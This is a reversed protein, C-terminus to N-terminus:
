RRGDVDEDNLSGDDVGRRQELADAEPADGVPDATDDEPGPVVPVAQELADAEPTEADLEDTHPELEEAREADEPYDEM